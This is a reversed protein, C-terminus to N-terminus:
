GVLAADPEFLGRYREGLMREDEQERMSKMMEIKGEAQLQAWKAYAPACTSCPGSSHMQLMTMTPAGGARRCVIAGTSTTVAGDCPIIQGVVHKCKYTHSVNNCM